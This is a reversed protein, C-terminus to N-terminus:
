ELLRAVESHDNEKALKIANKFRTGGIVDGTAGANLFMKVMDLRGHEAAGEIATRGDKMAPSANVNAGNEILLLAINIHGCIAAGQLATIGGTDAPPANVQAGKNILLQVIEENPSESSAAAQLATRGHFCAATSNPNAGHDLLMRVLELKGMEAALQLPTRDKEASSETAWYHEISTGSELACCLLDPDAREIIDHLLPSSAGDGRNVQAGQSLLYKFAGIPDGRREGYYEIYEYDKGWGTICPRVVAELCIVGEIIAPPSNVDAGRELLYRMLEISGSYAAAQLATLGRVEYAPKHIDAGHQVLTNVLELSGNIAAAQVPTFLEGYINVPTGASLLMFAAESCHWLCAAELGIVGQTKLDLGAKVLRQIFGFTFNDIKSFRELMLSILGNYNVDAGYHILLDICAFTEPGDDCDGLIDYLPNKDIHPCNPDVGHRLLQTVARVCTNNIAMLLASELAYASIAPNQRLFEEWGVEGSMVASIVEVTSVNGTGHYYKLLLNLLPENRWAKHLAESTVKAGHDLLLKIINRDGKWVARCLYSRYFDYIPFNVNAGNNILVKAMEYKSSEIAQYLATTHASLFGDVEAGQEILFKAAEIQETCAVEQLLLGGPEGKLKIPHLKKLTAILYDECGLKVAQRAINESYVGSEVLQRWLHMENHLHAAALLKSGFVRVSPAPFKLFEKLSEIHMDRILWEIFAGEQEESFLSNSFFYTALHFIVQVPGERIKVLINTNQTLFEDIYGKPLFRSLSMFLSSSTKRSHSDPWRALLVELSERYHAPLVSAEESGIMVGMSVPSPSWLRSRQLLEIRHLNALELFPLDVFLELEPKQIGNEMSPEEFEFRSWLPWQHGNPQMPDSPDNTAEPHTWPHYILPPSFSGRLMERPTSQRTIIINPDEDYMWLETSPEEHRLVHGMPSLCSSLQAPARPTSQGLMITDHDGEPTIYNIESPTPVELSEGAGFSIDNPRNVFRTIKDTPVLMGNVRFSTDKGQYRRRAQIRRIAVWHRQSLNKVFKWEKLKNLLQRRSTRFNVAGLAEVVEDVSKNNKIYLDFITEKQEGWEILTRRYRRYRGKTMCGVSSLTSAM